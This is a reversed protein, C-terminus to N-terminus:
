ISINKKNRGTGKLTSKVAEKGKNAIHSVTRNTQSRVYSQARRKADSEVQKAISQQMELMNKQNRMNSFHQFAQNGAFCLIGFAIGGFILWRNRTKEEKEKQRAAAQMSDYEARAKEEAIKAQREAEEQAARAANSEAVRLEEKRLECMALAEQIKGLVEKDEIEDQLGRLKILEYQLGDSFPLKEQVELLMNITNICSIAKAASEDPDDSEVVSAPGAGRGQGINSLRRDKKRDICIDFDKAVAFLRYKQKGEYYGLFVPISFVTRGTAPTNFNLETKDKLIFYGQESRRYDVSSPVMFAEPVMNSFSIDQYNGTRDFILAKVNETKKYRKDNARGLEIKVDKFRISCGDSEEVVDYVIHLCDNQDTWITSKAEQSYGRSATLVLSLVILFLKGRM